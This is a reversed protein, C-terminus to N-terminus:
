KELAFTLTQRVLESHGALRAAITVAWRGAMAPHVEIRYTGPDGYPRIYSRVTMESMGGPAMDVRVLTVDADRM